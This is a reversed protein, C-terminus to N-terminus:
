KVSSWIGDESLVWVAPVTSASYREGHNVTVRNARILSVPIASKSVFRRLAGDDGSSDTVYIDLPQLTTDRGVRTVYERVVPMCSECDSTVVVAFRVPAQNINAETAIGPALEIRRRHPFLRKWARDVARQFEIEGVVREYEKRVFLEALRDREASTKAHAGLVTLPDGHPTWLGRTGRMLDQYKRYETSTLGWNAALRGLDRSATERVHTERVDQANADGIAAGCWVFFVVLATTFPNTPISM